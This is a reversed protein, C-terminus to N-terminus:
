AGARSFAAREACFRGLCDVIATTRLVRPERCRVIAADPMARCAAEEPSQVIALGGAREIARLGRAGDDSAGSLLIGAVGAGLADAASEFLVDIAPRSFHVPEDVSLALAAGEDVLLHYDPPAVYVTSLALRQKDQAELVRRQCRASLAPVLASPGSRPLHVVIAVPLTMEPPLARLLAALPELSGASGGVVALARVDDSGLRATVSRRAASM